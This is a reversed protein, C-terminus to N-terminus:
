KPSGKNPSLSLSLGLHEFAAIWGQALCWALSSVLLPPTKGTSRAPPVSEAMRNLMVKFGGKEGKRREELMMNIALNWFNLREM